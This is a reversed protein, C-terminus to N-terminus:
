LFCLFFLYFFCLFFKLIWIVTLFFSDECSHGFFRFFHWIVDEQNVHVDVHHTKKKKKEKPIAEHRAYKGQLRWRDWLQCLVKSM